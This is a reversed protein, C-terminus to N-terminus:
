MRKLLADVCREATKGDWLAPCKKEPLNGDLISLAADLIVKKDTGVVKNTGETVTIPRETNERLTLCPIGLATTEEQLGGSDTLVLRANSSLALFDIYGKPETLICQPTGELTQLLQFEELRNRTRPHLPLVVSSKKAVTTLVEVMSSLAERSDVNSPRHLTTLVYQTKSLGLEELVKSEAAAPLRDFLTDIMINGVLEIRDKPVGEALLNTDADPSPTLLLDSLRDTVVRNVEEPMEWDNSRLGAELHCVKIGLKAAVLSCAVTSNVDGVVLTWSPRNQLCYEEFKVMVSATQQAHTGSGVGLHADPKRIGLDEFFVDSMNKDYHQGTHILQAAVGRKELEKLLPAVKMFNPRAGAIVAIYSM